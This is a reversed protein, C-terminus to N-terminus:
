NATPMWRHMPPSWQNQDLTKSSEQDHLSFVHADPLAESRYELHPFLNCDFHGPKTRSL